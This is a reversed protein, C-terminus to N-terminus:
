LSIFDPHDYDMLKGTFNAMPQEVSLLCVPTRGQQTPFFVLLQGAEAMTASQRLIDARLEYTQSPHLGAPQARTKIALSPSKEGEKQFLTWYVSDKATIEIVRYMGEVSSPSKVEKGVASFGWSVAVLYLVLFFRM